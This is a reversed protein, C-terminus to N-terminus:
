RPSRGEAERVPTSDAFAREVAEYTLTADPEDGARDPPVDPDPTPERDLAEDERQSRMAWSFFMYTIIVWLYSGAVLKMFLGAARQDDLVSIGFARAPTDYASYVAGDAFTLWGGPITPIVSMLFLYVMQAPPTMRWESIPGCVPMWMMLATVVVLVHVGYHLPGNRTTANVLTPWHTLLVTANYAIGAVVPRSLTRVVRRVRGDALILDALWRPTAILALPPVVLTLLTHQAMHVVYLYQEGIDHMPWESALWLLVLGAIGANRQRRTLVPGDTVVKPGVVRVAWIYLGALAVVLIWVEPHLQLRWVDSAHPVAATM